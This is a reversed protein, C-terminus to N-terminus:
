LLEALNTRAWYQLQGTNQIDWPTGADKPGATTDEPLFSVRRHSAKQLIEKRAQDMDTPTDSTHSRVMAFLQLNTYLNQTKRKLVLM